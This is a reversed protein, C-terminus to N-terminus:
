KAKKIQDQLMSDASAPDFGEEKVEFILIYDNKASYEENITFQDSVAATKLKERIMNSLKTLDEASGKITMCDVLPEDWMEIQLYQYPGYAQHESINKNDPDAVFADLIDCFKLLGSVSGVFRWCGNKDDHDYYFGFKRWEDTTSQNINLAKNM